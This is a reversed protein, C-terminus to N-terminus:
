QHSMMLTVDSRTLSEFSCGKPLICRIFEHKKELRGKQWSAMPDCYLLRTRLKGALNKELLSPNKFESGNDTLIVPFTDLMGKTGLKQEL